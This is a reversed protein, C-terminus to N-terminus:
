PQAAPGIPLPWRLRDPHVAPTPARAELGYASVKAMPVPMKVKQVAPTEGSAPPVGATKGEFPYFFVAPPRRRDM